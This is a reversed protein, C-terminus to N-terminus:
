KKLIEQEYFRTLADEWHPLRKFGADDLSKKSLVSNKQRAAPSEYEETSVPVIKACGGSLDLIKQAFQAWSCVGESSANYTGYRETVIMDCLLASIDKTYTPSGMQDSVVNVAPCDKSLKLMTKVFNCGNKGFVWSIRVIFLRPCLAAAKEGELKTYGYFNVPNKPSDTELPASGSDGYVYDSSIYLMKAGHKQCLRAINSTGFVNVAECAGRNTEAKDVCTYAACHIVADPLEKSFVADASASDTIDLRNKDAAVYNIGRLDLERSVDHGLQGRAGTVLVKM